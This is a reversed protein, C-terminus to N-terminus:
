ADLVGRSTSKESLHRIDHFAYVLVGSDTVQVDAVERMVMGDLLEKAGAQPLALASMVEVLTLKGDHQGALRLIESEMTQRRLVDKRQDLRGRAGFHSRLLAAGAFGPLGVTLLLTVARTTASADADSQMYGVFMFLALLLLAAGGVLKGV